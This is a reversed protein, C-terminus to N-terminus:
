FNLRQLSAREPGIAVEFLDGYDDESLPRVACGCLAGAIDPVINSHGVVLVVTGAHHERLLAAFEAAPRAPDYELVPLGRADAIPRATEVARRYPTAYIAALLVEDLVQVLVEARRRGAQSLPPDRTEDAVKEAHRVIFVRTHAPEATRAACGCVLILIVCVLVQGFPSNGKRERSPMGSPSRDSPSVRGEETM